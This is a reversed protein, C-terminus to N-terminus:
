TRVTRLARRTAEGRRALTGEVAIEVISQGEPRLRKLDAREHEIGEEQLLLATEDDRAFTALNVLNAVDLNAAHGCGIFNVLGSASFIRLGEHLLM